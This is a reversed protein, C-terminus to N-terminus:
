YLDLEFGNDNLLDETAAEVMNWFEDQSTKCDDNWYDAFTITDPLDYVGCGLRREVAYNVQRKFTEFTQPYTKLENSM